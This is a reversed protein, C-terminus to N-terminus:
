KIEGYFRLSYEPTVPCNTILSIVCTVKGAEAGKQTKATLTATEGPQLEQKTMEVVIRKDNAYFRHIKMSAKGTNKIQYAFSVPQESTVGFNYYKKDAEIVPATAPDVKSLDEEVFISVPLAYKKGDVIMTVEEENLGFEGKLSTNYSVQIKAQGKVDIQQPQITMKLCAPLDTFSVAVKRGSNNFVGFAMSKTEGKKVNMMSLHELPLRLGSALEYPFDDLITRAKGEVTGKIKLEIVPTKANSFVTITKDFYGPRDKPDFTAKVFGKKGPLVPQKTWQPSTCGCSSEVNKVIIPATGDNTFEFDYFVPGNVEKINGFDHAKKSFNIIAQSYAMVSAFVFFVLFIGKAKM